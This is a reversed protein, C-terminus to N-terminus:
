QQKNLIEVKSKFIIEKKTSLTKTQSLCPFFTFEQLCINCEDIVFVACSLEWFIEWCSLYLFKFIDVIFCILMSIIYGHQDTDINNSNNRVKILVNYIKGYKIITWWKHITFWLSFTFMNINLPLLSSILVLLLIFKKFNVLESFVLTIRCFRQTHFRPCGQRRWHFQFHPSCDKLIYCCLLRATHYTVPRTKKLIYFVFIIELMVTLDTNQEIFCLRIKIKDNWKNSSPTNDPAQLPSLPPGTSYRWTHDFCITLEIFIAISSLTQM